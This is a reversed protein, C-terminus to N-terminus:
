RTNYCVIPDYPKVLKEYVTNLDADIVTVRALESGATSYVQLYMIHHM